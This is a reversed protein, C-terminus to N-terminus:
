DIKELDLSITDADGKKGGPGVIFKVTTTRYGKLQFRVFHPGPESFHYEKGGGMGDWDDATGLLTGDVFVEADEPDIGFRVVTGCRFTESFAPEPTPAVTLALAVPSLPQVGASSGITATPVIVSEPLATAPVATAPGATLATAPVATAPGATLAPAKEPAVTPHWAVGSTPPQDTPQPMVGTMSERNNRIVLIGIAVAFFLLGFAILLGGTMRRRPPAPDDMAAAPSAAGPGAAPPPPPPGVGTAGGQAVAPPVATVNSMRGPAVLAAANAPGRPTVKSEIVTVGTAAGALRAASLVVTPATAEVSAPAPVVFTRALQRAEGAFAAADPVREAPKKALARGLFDAIEPSLKRSIEPDALPDDHLIQYILTTVTESPFPKRRLVLEYLVVALSFLDARGDVVEGRVQEPAMYAPSGVVTGTRTLGTDEGVAKAVGFDAVKVTGQRNLMINAPKVDRHIVGLAHAAGLADAVQAALELASPIDPYERRHLRASLSEGEIFEMVLFLSAGDRGADYVHVVNTHNIRAALRAERLFRAELEEASVSGAGVTPLISKIAVPRDLAPDLGRYVVGMAGRGLEGQITYRSIKEPVTM